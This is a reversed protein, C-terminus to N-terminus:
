VYPTTPLTLHTYSVAVTSGAWFSAGQIYRFQTTALGATTVAREFSPKDFLVWHRPCHYGTWSRNRFLRADISDHNPTRVFIVGTPSLLEALNSLVGVPDAVHEILNQLMVLDFRRETRFDEVRTCFYEHGRAQAASASAEDLDVVATYGVRTDAERLVALERGDGGGIDLVARDRICM